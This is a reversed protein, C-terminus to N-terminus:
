NQRSNTGEIKPPTGQLRPPFVKLENQRQPDNFVLSACKGKVGALPGYEWGSRQNSTHNSSGTAM